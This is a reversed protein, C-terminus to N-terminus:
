PLNVESSLHASVLGRSNHHLAVFSETDNEVTGTSFEGTFGGYKEETGDNNYFEIVHNKAILNKNVTLNLKLKIGFASLILSVPAGQNQREISRRSRSSQEMRLSEYYPVLFLLFLM